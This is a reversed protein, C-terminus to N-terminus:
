TARNLMRMLNNAIVLLEIAEDLSDAWGPVHARPNRIGTMVGSFIEMYGLQQNRDSDSQGANLSLSPSNVSLAAKMLASGDKDAMGSKQKVTDNVHMFAQLVAMSYHGDAFLQRCFAVLDPDTIIADFLDLDGIPNRIEIRESWPSDSNKYLEGDLTEDGQTAPLSTTTADAAQSWQDLPKPQVTITRLAPRHSEPNLTEALRCLEPYRGLPSNITEALRRLEPYRGLPSNITEALRRLEPYRGLPSNITEALRRLEPYRGLPSNITEALRRLEPYRGLPSNITEALRRLEPYRGLPSNLAGFAARTENSVASPLVARRVETSLQDSNDNSKQVDM